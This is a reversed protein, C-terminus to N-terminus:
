RQRCFPMTFYGRKDCCQKGIYPTDDERIAPVSRYEAESGIGEAEVALVEVLAMMEDKVGILLAFSTEDGACLRFVNHVIQLSVSSLLM